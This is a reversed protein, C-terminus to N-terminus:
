IPFENIYIEYKNKLIPIEKSLRNRLIREIRSDNM